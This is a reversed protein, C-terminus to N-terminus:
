MGRHMMRHRMMSHHMMRHRMMMRRHMMPRQSMQAAMESDHGNAENLHMGGAQAAPAAATALLVAVGFAASLRTITM